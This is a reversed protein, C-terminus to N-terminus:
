ASLMALLTLRTRNLHRDMHRVEHEFVREITLGTLLCHVFVLAEQMQQDTAEVDHFIARMTELHAHSHVLDVITQPAQSNSGRTALLIELGALYIDSQYHQWMADVFMGARDALSGTRLQPARVLANFREHSLEMIAILIDEKAGFHHQVAGWTVGARQAIRSSSANSFGGENILTIVANLIKERTIQTKMAQRGLAPTSEM